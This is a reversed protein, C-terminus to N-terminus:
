WDSAAAPKAPKLIGVLGNTQGNPGASFVLSPPRGTGPAGSV